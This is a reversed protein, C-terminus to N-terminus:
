ANSPQARELLFRRPPKGVMKKFMAIFSSASEYGLDISVTQVSDGDALRQLAVSIHMQRKWQSVSMGLEQNFRRRLTRESLACRRAWEKLPAKDAPAQMMMEILRRLNPDSPLPPRARETPASSIEHLILLLMQTEPGDVDYMTPCSRVRLLLERLLPSVSMVCCTKPLYPAEDPDVFLVAFEIDGSAWSEHSAGGPIWIACQPPVSWLDGEVECALTGRMTYILECKRHRHQRLKWGSSTRDLGEMVMPRPIADIDNDLLEVSQM